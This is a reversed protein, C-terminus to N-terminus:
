QEFWDANEVGKPDFYEMRGCYGCRLVRVEIYGTQKMPEHRQYTGKGCWRCKLGMSPRLPVFNGNVMYKVEKLLTPLLALNHRRAYEEVIMSDFLGHVHAWRQEELREVLYNGAARHGERAFIDGGSLMWYMVKGLAYVDVAHTVRDHQGAQMEPAIYNTSGMGRDSLTICKGDAVHCIGFDALVPTLDARFLINEPKLDRHVVPPRAGAGAALADVIPLLVDLTLTINGKFQQAGVDALSRKECLEAVYYPRAGAIDFDVVRLINPHRLGITVEVERKFRDLREMNRLRKLAYRGSFEGRTDEVFYVYAQGGEGLSGGIRWRGYVNKKAM